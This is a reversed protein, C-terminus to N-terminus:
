IGNIIIILIITIIIVLFILLILVIIIAIIKVSNWASMNQMELDEEYDDFVGDLNYHDKTKNKNKKYLKKM